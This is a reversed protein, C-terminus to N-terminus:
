GTMGAALFSKSNLVEAQFTVTDDENGSEVLINEVASGGSITDFGDLSNIYLNDGEIDIYDASDTGTITTLNIKSTQATTQIVM